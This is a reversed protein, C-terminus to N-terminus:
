LERKKLDKTTPGQIARGDAAYRSGHCPCDWSREAPNWAVVCGLHTCVASVAQLRGDDDRSVALLRAGRRIVTGEGPKLEGPDRGGPPRVRDAVFHRAVKANESV